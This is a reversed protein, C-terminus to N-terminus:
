KVIKGLGSQNVSADGYKLSSINIKAAGSAIASVKDVKGGTLTINAGGSSSVKVDKAKSFNAKISSGGSSSISIKDGEIRNFNGSAGGSMSLNLTNLNIKDIKINAGGSASLSKTKGSLETATFKSGGSLSIKKLNKCSVHAILKVNRLNEKGKNDISLSLHGNIVQAKIYVNGDNEAELEVAASKGETFYIQIGSSASISTFDDVSVRESGTSSKSSGCSFVLILLLFFISKTKM